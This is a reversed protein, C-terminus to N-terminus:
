KRLATRITDAAQDGMLAAGSHGFHVTDEYTDLHKMMLSHQDDITVGLSSFLAQAIQNRENIRENTAGNFAQIQVPTITAWVLAHHSPAIQEVSHLLDPLATKYQAESYDWGHMGNNFHIVRFTVNEMAAFEEIQRLLRPDGVSTSVAMLYVNAVGKLDKTVEPFYNRTISDGLLLVNPLALDAHSPRVEWTWEIEEPISIQKQAEGLLTACALLATIAISWYLAKHNGYHTLNRSRTSAHM